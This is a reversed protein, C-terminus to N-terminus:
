VATSLEAATAGVITFEFATAYLTAPDFTHRALAVGPQQALWEVFVQMFSVHAASLLSSALNIYHRLWEATDEGTAIAKSIGEREWFDRYDAKFRGNLVKNWIMWTDYIPFLSPNYFHLFKSVTMLPYHKKPKIGQMKLLCSDLRDGTGSKRFNLLNVPGRWSFETVENKITEFTQRSSWAEGSIRSRFAGGWARSRLMDYIIEFSRFADEPSSAPDFATLSADYLALTHEDLPWSGEWADFFGDLAKRQCSENEFFTRLTQMQVPIEKNAEFVDAM